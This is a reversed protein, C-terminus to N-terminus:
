SLLKKDIVPAGVAGKHVGMRTTEKVGCRLAVNWCMSDIYLYLYLYSVYM